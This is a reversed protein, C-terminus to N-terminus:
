TKMQVQHGDGGTNWSAGTRHQQLLFLFTQELLQHPLWLKIGPALDKTATCNPQKIKQLHGLLGTDEGSGHQTGLELRTHEWHERHKNSRM